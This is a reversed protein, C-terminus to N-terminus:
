VQTQMGKDRPASEHEKWAQRKSTLKRDLSPPNFHHLGLHPILNRQNASTGDSTTDQSRQNINILVIKEQGLIHIQIFIKDM